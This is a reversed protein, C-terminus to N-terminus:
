LGIKHKRYTSYLNRITLRLWKKKPDFRDISLAEDVSAQLLRAYFKNIYRSFKRIDGESTPVLYSLKERPKGNWYFPTGICAIQVILKKYM